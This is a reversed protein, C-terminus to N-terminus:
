WKDFLVHIKEKLKPDRITNNEVCDFWLKRKLTKNQQVLEGIEQIDIDEKSCYNLIKELLSDGQTKYIENIM